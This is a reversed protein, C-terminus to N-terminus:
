SAQPGSWLQVDEPKLPGRFWDLSQLLDRESADWEEHYHLAHPYPAEPAAWQAVPQVGGDELARTFRDLPGYAYVLNYRDLVLMGDEAESFLWVDHRADEAFYRGFRAALAEVESRSLSPSEYRGLPSGIRSTHLVYLLRYPPALAHM